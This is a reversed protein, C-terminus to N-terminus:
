GAGGGRSDKACEEEDPEPREMPAARGALGIRKRFVEAGTVFVLELFEASFVGGVAAAILGFEVRWGMARWCLFVILAVFAGTTTKVLLRTLLMSVTMKFGAREYMRITAIIGAAFGMVIFGLAPYDTAVRSGWALLSELDKLM